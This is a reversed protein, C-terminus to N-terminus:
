GVIRIGRQGRVTAQGAAKGRPAGLCRDGRWRPLPGRYEWAHRSDGRPRVAELTMGPYFLASKRVDVLIRQGEREGELVLCDALRPNRCSRVVRVRIRGQEDCSLAARGTLPEQTAEADVAEGEAPGGGVVEGEEVEDEPVADLLTSDAEGLVEGLMERRELARERRELSGVVPSQAPRERVASVRWWPSSVEVEQAPSVVAEEPPAVAASSEPHESVGAAEIDSHQEVGGPGEGQESGLAGEGPAPRLLARARRQKGGLRPERTRIIETSM